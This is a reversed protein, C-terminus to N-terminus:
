RREPVPSGPCQPLTGWYGNCYRFRVRQDCIVRSIFDERTCRSLEDNMQTWRDVAPAKPAAAAIQPREPAPAAEAAAPSAAPPVSRPAAAAAASAKRAPKVPLPKIEVPSAPAPEVSAPPPQEASSAAAADPQRPPRQPTADAPFTSMVSTGRDSDAVIPVTDDAQRIKWFIFALLAVAVCAAVLLAAIGLRRPHSAYIPIAAPTTPPPSSPAVSVPPPDPL